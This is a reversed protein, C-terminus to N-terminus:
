SLEMVMTVTTNFELVYFNMYQAARYAIYVRSM